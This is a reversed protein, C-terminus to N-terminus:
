GEGPSAQSDARSVGAASNNNNNNNNGGGGLYNQPNNYSFSGLLSRLHRTNMRKATVLVGLLACLSHPGVQELAITGQPTIAAEAAARDAGLGSELLADTVAERLTAVLAPSVVP